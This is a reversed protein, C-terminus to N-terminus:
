ATGRSNIKRVQLITVNNGTDITKIFYRMQFSRVHRRHGVCMSQGEESHGLGLRQSLVALLFAARFMRNTDHWSSRHQGSYYGAAVMRSFNFKNKNYNLLVWFGTGWSPSVLETYPYHLHLVNKDDWLEVLCHQDPSQLLPWCIKWNKKRHLAM